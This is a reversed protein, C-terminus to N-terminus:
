GRQWYPPRGYYEHLQREYARTMPHSELYQPANQIIERLLNVSVESDIWSVKEIWEPAILVHKGPLWNRTSVDLYRISWDDPDVIFDEIHGIEGDASHIHYGKVEKTSRLHSDGSQETAARQAGIRAAEALDPPFPGTGWLYSGTWYYPYGYYDMYAAEHQRSVPKQTNIDPSNEIQKKTLAVHIQRGDWDLHQLFAPSILVLRGSLWGGTHVVLYRIAWTVDDFYFEQVSGIEGDLAHMSFDELHSATNM